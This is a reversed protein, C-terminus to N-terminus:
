PQSFIEKKTKLFMFTECARVLREISSVIKKIRTLTQKNLNAKSENRKVKTTNIRKFDFKEESKDFSPKLHRHLCKCSSM